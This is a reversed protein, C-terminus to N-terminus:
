LKGPQTHCYIKMLCMESAPSESTKNPSETTSHWYNLPCEVSDSMHPQQEAPHNLSKSYISVNHFFILSSQICDSFASDTQPRNCNAEVQWVDGRTPKHLIDAQLILGGYFTSNLERCLYTAM